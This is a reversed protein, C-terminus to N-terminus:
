NNATGKHYMLGALGLMFVVGMIGQLPNNNVGTVWDPVVGSYKVLNGVNIIYYGGVLGGHLGMSFGLRGRKWKKAWVLSLGLLILAPFQPLSAIMVDIPKIFHTLAFFIASVWLAVDFSYDKRLEELFWGRFFLEEAFGIGLGVLLSEGILNILLLQPKQWTLLGLLGQIIFVLFINFFGLSLGQIINVFNLGSFELGYDSFIRPQQYIFKGSVKVLIMFQIYLIVLTIISQLNTDAVLLYIPIAFPLWILLLAIIFCGLRVPASRQAFEALNLKM